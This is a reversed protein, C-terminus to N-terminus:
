NVSTGDPLCTGQNAHQELQARLRRVASTDISSVVVASKGGADIEIVTGTLPLTEWDPVARSDTGEDVTAELSISQGVRLTPRVQPCNAADWEVVQYDVGVRQVIGDQHAYALVYGGSPTKVILLGNSLVETVTAAVTGNRDVLEVKAGLQPFSKMEVTNM